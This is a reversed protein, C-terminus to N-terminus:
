TRDHEDGTTAQDHPVGHPRADAPLLAQVDCTRLVSWNLPGPQRESFVTEAILDHLDGAILQCRLRTRAVTLTPDTLTQAAQMLRGAVGAAMVYGWFGPLHPNSLRAKLRFDRTQQDEYKHRGDHDNDPVHIAQETGANGWGGVTWDRVTGRLYEPTPGSNLDELSLQALLWAHLAACLVRGLCELQPLSATTQDESWEAHMLTDLGWRLPAENGSVSLQGILRREMEFWDQEGSRQHGRAQSARHIAEAADELRATYARCAAQEEPTLEPTSRATLDPTWRSLHPLAPLEPLWEPRPLRHSGPLQALNLRWLPTTEQPLPSLREMEAWALNTNRLAQGWSDPTIGGAQLRGWPGAACWQAGWRDRAASAAEPPLLQLLRLCERLQPTPDLDPRPAAWDPVAASQDAAWLAQLDGWGTRPPAGDLLGGILAMLEGFATRSPEPRHWGPTENLILACALTTLAKRLPQPLVTLTAQQSSLWPHPLLPASEGRLRALAARGQWADLDRILTQSFQLLGEPDTEVKWPELTATLQAALIQPDRSM